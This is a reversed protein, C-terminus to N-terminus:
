SPQLEYDPLQSFIRMASSLLDQVNCGNPLHQQFANRISNFEDLVSRFLKSLQEGELDFADRAFARIHLDVTDVNPSLSLPVAGVFWAIKWVLHIGDQSDTALPMMHHRKIPTAIIAPLNWVDVLHTMLVVHSRDFRLSEELFLQCHNGDSERLLDLYPQGFHAAMIPVAYDQLFGSLYAEGQDPSKMWQAIRRALCGRILSDRWFRGFDFGNISVGSYASALSCSLAMTCVTRAGLVVLARQITAVEEKQGYVASNAITLLSASLDHDLEIVKAVARADSDPSSYLQLINFGVPPLEPIATNALIEAIPNHFNPTM